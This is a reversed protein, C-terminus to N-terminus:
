TYIKSTAVVKAEMDAVIPADCTCAKILKKDSLEIVALKCKSCYM